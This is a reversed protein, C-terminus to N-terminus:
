ASVEVAFLRRRLWSGSEEVTEERRWPGARVGLRRERWRCFGVV